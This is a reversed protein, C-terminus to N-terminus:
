PNSVSVGGLRCLEEFLANNTSSVIFVARNLADNSQRLSTEQNGIGIAVVRERLQPAAEILDDAVRQARDRSLRLASDSYATNGATSGVILYTQSSHAANLQDGLHKIAAQADVPSYYEALDGKFRIKELVLPEGALFATLDFDEGTVAISSTNPADSNASLTPLDDRFDINEQLVGGATLIEVWLQRLWTVQASTLRSQTGGAEGLYFWQFRVDESWSPIEHLDRLREVIEGTDLATIDPVVDQMRLLGATSIGNSVVVVLQNQTSRTTLARSALQFGRLLDCEPDNPTVALATHLGTKWRNAELEVQASNKATSVYDVTGLTEPAGDAVIVTACSGTSYTELPQLMAADTMPVNSSNEIVYVTHTSGSDSDSSVTESRTSGCGSLVLTLAATVIFIISHKM